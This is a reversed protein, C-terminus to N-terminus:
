GWTRRNLGRLRQPLDHKGCFPPRAVQVLHPQTRQRDWLNRQIIYHLHENCGEVRSANLAPVRHSRRISGYSKPSRHCRLAALLHVKESRRSRVRVPYLNCRCCPGWLPSAARKLRAVVLRPAYILSVARGAMRMLERATEPRMRKGGFGVVTM